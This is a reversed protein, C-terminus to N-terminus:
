SRPWWKSMANHKFGCAEVGLNTPIEYAYLRLSINMCMELLLNTFFWETLEQNKSDGRRTVRKETCFGKQVSEEPDRFGITSAQQPHRLGDSVNRTQLITRELM